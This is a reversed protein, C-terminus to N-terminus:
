KFPNIIKLEARLGSAMMHEKCRVESGIFTAYNPPEKRVVMYELEIDVDNTDCEQGTLEDIYKM